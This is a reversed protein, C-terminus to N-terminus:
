LTSEALALFGVDALELSLVLTNFSKPLLELGKNVLVVSQTIVNEGHLATQNFGGKVNWLSGWVNVKALRTM